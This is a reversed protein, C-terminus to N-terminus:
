AALEINFQQQLLGRAADNYDAGKGYIVFNTRDLDTTAKHRRVHNTWETVSNYAGWATGKRGKLDQGAGDEYLFGLEALARRRQGSTTDKDIVAPIADDGFVLAQHFAEVEHDKMSIQSLQRAFDLHIDFQQQAIGLADRAQQVRTESLM